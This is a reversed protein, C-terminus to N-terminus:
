CTHIQLAGARDQEGGLQFIIKQPETTANLEGINWM